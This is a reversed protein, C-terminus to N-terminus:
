LPAARVTLKLAIRKKLAGENNIICAWHDQSRDKTATACMCMGCRVARGVAAARQRVPMYVGFQTWKRCSAVEEVEVSVIRGEEVETAVARGETDRNEVRIHTPDWVILVGTHMEGSIHDCWGPTGCGDLGRTQLM